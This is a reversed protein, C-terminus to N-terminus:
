SVRRRNSMLSLSIMVTNLLTSRGSASVAQLLANLFQQIQKGYNQSVAPDVKLLYESVPIGSPDLRDPLASLKKRLLILIVPDM